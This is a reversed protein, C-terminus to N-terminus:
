SMPVPSQNRHHEGSTGIWKSTDVLKRLQQYGEQDFGLLSKYTHPFVRFSYSTQKGAKWAEEIWRQLNRVGPSLPQDLLPFYMPQVQQDMLASCAMLFNRYSFLLNIIPLTIFSTLKGAGGASIGHSLTSSLPVNMAYCPGLPPEM